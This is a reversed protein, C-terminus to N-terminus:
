ETDDAVTIPAGVEGDASLLVAFPRSAEFQACIILVMVTLPVCLVMGTVGWIAGWFSLSLMIVLGSLNLSNGMLRPELLNGILFQITGLGLSIILFPTLTDFYVLALLSPFIVATLSGITPIYNLLFAIFGFLAAYPLGLVTLLASTLMGTLVSVGTKIGLYHRLADTIRGRVKFAFDARGPSTFARALKRDFTSQELLLFLVYIFVLSASGAITTIANAGAAILRNLGGAPMLDSLEIPDKLGFRTSYSDFLRELRAQYVPADRALDTLNATVVDVVVVSAGFILALAAPLTIARPLHRGILPIGNVGAALANILYWVLLAIIFPLLLARGVVLLWGTLSVSLLVMTILTPTRPM